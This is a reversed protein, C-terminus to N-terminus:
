DNRVDLPMHGVESMTDCQPHYTSLKNFFMTSLKNFFMKRIFLGQFELRQVLQLSQRVAVLILLGHWVSFKRLLAFLFYPDFCCLVVSCLM